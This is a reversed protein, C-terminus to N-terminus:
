YFPGSVVVLYSLEQKPDNDNEARDFHPVDCPSEVKVTPDM